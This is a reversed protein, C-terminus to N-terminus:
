QLLHNASIADTIKQAFLARGAPLIGAPVAMRRGLGMFALLEPDRGIGAAPPIDAGM